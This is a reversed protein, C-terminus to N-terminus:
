LVASKLTEYVFFGHGNKTVMGVWFDNFYSRRKRFKCLCAFLCNIGDLWEQSLTLKLTKFNHIQMTFWNKKEM